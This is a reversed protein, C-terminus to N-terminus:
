LEFSWLSKEFVYVCVMFAFVRSRSVDAAALHMKITILEFCFAKQHITKSKYSVLAMRPKANFKIWATPKAPTLFTHPNIQMTATNFLIKLTATRSIITKVDNINSSEMLSLSITAFKKHPFLSFPLLAVSHM